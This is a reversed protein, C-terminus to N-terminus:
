FIVKYEVQTAKGDKYVKYLLMKANSDMLYIGSLISNLDNYRLIDKIFVIDGYSLYRFTSIHSHVLGCFSINNKTWVSIVKNISYVDPYYENEFSKGHFDYYYDTIVGGQCGLIGGTELGSRGITKIIEEWVRKTIIVEEEMYTMSFINGRM